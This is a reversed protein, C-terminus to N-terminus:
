LLALLLIVVFREPHRTVGLRLLDLLRVPFERQFPVRVLVGVVGFTEGLLHELVYRLRVLYQRVLLQPLLVIPSLGDELVLSSSSSLLLPMVHIRVHEELLIEASLLPRTLATAPLLEVEPVTSLLSPYKQREVQSELLKEAFPM